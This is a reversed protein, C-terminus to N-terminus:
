RYIVFKGSGTNKGNIIKILYIGESFSQTELTITKGTIRENKIERGFVDTIILSQNLETFDTQITIFQNAPNPFLKISSSSKSEIDTTLCFNIPAITDPNFSNKVFFSYNSFDSITTDTITNTYEQYTNGLQAFFNIMGLSVTDGSSSVINIAPYNMHSFNGNFINIHVFGDSDIWVSDVCVQSFDISDDSVPSLYKMFNTSDELQSIVYIGDNDADVDVGFDGGTFTGSYLQGWVETGNTNFIKTVVDSGAFGNISGTFLIFGNGIVKGSIQSDDMGGMNKKWIIEGATNFKIITDAAGYLVYENQGTALIGYSWDGFPPTTPLGSLSWAFNGNSDHKTVGYPQMGMIGSVLLIENNYDCLIKDAQLTSDIFDIAGTSTYRILNNNNIYASLVIRGTYDVDFATNYQSVVYQEIGNENYVAVGANSRLYFLNNRFEINTYYDTDFDNNGFKVWSLNGNMSVKFFLLSFQNNIIRGGAIYVNNSGDIRMDYARVNNLGQNNFTYTWLLLGNSSYKNLIIRNEQIGGDIPSSYNTLVYIQQTNDITVKVAAVRSLSDGSFGITNQWLPQAILNVNSIFQLLCVSIIYFQKKM